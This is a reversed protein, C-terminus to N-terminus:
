KHTPFCFINFINYFILINVKIARINLSPLQNQRLVAAADTFLRTLM